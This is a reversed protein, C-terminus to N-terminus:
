SIKDIICYNGFEDMMGLGEEKECGRGLGEKMATKNGCKTAGVKGLRGTANWIGILIRISECLIKKM